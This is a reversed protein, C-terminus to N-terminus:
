GVSMQIAEVSLGSRRVTVSHHVGLDDHREAGLARIAQQLVYLFVPRDQVPWRNWESRLDRRLTSQATDLSFPTKAIARPALTLRDGATAGQRAVDLLAKKVTIEGAAVKAIMEPAARALRDVRKVTTGSIGLLAGIADAAREPGHAGYLAKRGRPQGKAQAKRKRAEGRAELIPAALQPFREGALMRIACVQDKALHRRLLNRSQVELWPEQGSWEVRPCSLNLRQCALYRHRGDLIQGDHVLIPVKVGYQRIDEVLAEFDRWSMEPFLTAVPHQSLKEFM